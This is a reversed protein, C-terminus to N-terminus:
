RVHFSLAAPKQVKSDQGATFVTREVCSGADLVLAPELVQADFKELQDASTSGKLGITLQQTSLSGLAIAALLQGSGSNKKSSIVTLVGMASNLALGLIRLASWNQSRLMSALVIQRGIPQLSGDSRSLAQYIESSVVSQKARSSNCINRDYAAIGKPLRGYNQKVLTVPIPTGTVEFTSQAFGEACLSAIILAALVLNKM